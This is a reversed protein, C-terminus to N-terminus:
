SNSKGPDHGINVDLSKLKHGWNQQAASLQEEPWRTTGWSQQNASGQEWVRGHHPRRLQKKHWRKLRKRGAPRSPSTMEDWSGCSFGNSPPNIRSDGKSTHMRPAFRNNVEPISIACLLCRAWQRFTIIRHDMPTIKELIMWFWLRLFLCRASNLRRWHSPSWCELLWKTQSDQWMWHLLVPSMLVMRVRRVRFGNLDFANVSVHLTSLQVYFAM